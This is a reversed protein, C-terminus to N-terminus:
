EAERWKNYYYTWTQGNTSALDNLMEWIETEITGARLPIFGVSQPYKIKKNELSETNETEYVEIILKWDSIIFDARGGSKIEAETFFEIQKSWCYNALLFKTFRHSDIEKSTCKLNNRQSSQVILSRTEKRNLEVQNVYM